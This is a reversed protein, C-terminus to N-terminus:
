HKIKVEVKPPIQKKPNLSQFKKFIYYKNKFIREHGIIDSVIAAKTKLKSAIEGISDFEGILKGEITFLCYVVLEDKSM